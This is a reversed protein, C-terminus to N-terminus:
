PAQEAKATQEGTKEDGAKAAGQGAAAEEAAAKQAAGKLDAKEKQCQERAQLIEQIGKPVDSKEVRSWFAALAGGVLLLLEKETVRPAGGTPIQIKEDDDDAKLGGGDSDDEQSSPPKLAATHKVCYTRVDAPVNGAAFKAHLKQLAKVTPHLVGEFIEWLEHPAGGVIELFSELHPVAKAGICWREFALYPSGPLWQQLLAWNGRGDNVDAPKSPSGGEPGDASLGKAARASKRPRDTVDTDETPDAKGGEAKGKAGKRPRDAGDPRGCLFRAKDALSVSPNFWALGFNFLDQTNQCLREKRGEFSKGMASLQFYVREDSNVPGHAGSAEAMLFRLKAGFRAALFDKYLATGEMPNNEIATQVIGDELLRLP